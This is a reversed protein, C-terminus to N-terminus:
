GQNKRSLEQKASALRRRLALVSRLYSFSLALISVKSVRGSPEHWRVPIEKTRYGAHEALVLLESDFFWGTSEVRPVLRDRVRRSVAKCGCPADLVHTRLLVKLVLQYGRSTLRRLWDREVVAGAAYRSGIALDYGEDRIASLLAPLADLDAALDADMFCYVEAEAREWAYKIAYGKGTRDCSLYRLHPLRGALEKTIAATRDTSGNDAVIVEWTWSACRRALFEVVQRCTREIIREENLAPLVVCLRM